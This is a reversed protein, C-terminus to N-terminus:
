MTQSIEETEVPEEYLETSYISKGCYSIDVIDEPYLHNRAGFTREFERRDKAPMAWDSYYTSPDRRLENAEMKFTLTQGEKHATVSLTKADTSRAATMVDRLRRLSTDKLNEIGQLEAKLVENKNLALLIREQHKAFYEQAEKEIFASPNRLYSLLETDRKWEDFSYGCQYTIEEPTRGELFFRRGDNIVGYNRYYELDKSDSGLLRAVDLNAVDNNVWAEVKACVGKTINEKMQNTYTKVEIEPDIDEFYGHAFYIKGEIKSYIGANEFDERRRVVDEKDYCYQRYLYIFEEDKPVKIFVQTGHRPSDDILPRYSEDELWVRLEEKSIM